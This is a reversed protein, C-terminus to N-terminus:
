PSQIATQKVAASSLAQRDTLETTSITVRWKPPHGNRPHCGAGVNGSRWFVPKLCPNGTARQLALSSTLSKTSLISITTM